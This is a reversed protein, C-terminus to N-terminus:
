SQGGFIACGVLLYPAMASLVVRLGVDVLTMMSQKLDGLGAHLIM